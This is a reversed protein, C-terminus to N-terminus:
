KPAQPCNEQGTKGTCKTDSKITGDPYYTKQHIKKSPGKPKSKLGKSCYVGTCSTQKGDGAHGVDAILMPLALVAGAAALTLAKMIIHGM